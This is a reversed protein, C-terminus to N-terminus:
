WQYTSMGGQTCSSMEGMVTGTSHRQNRQSPHCTAASCLPTRDGLEVQSVLQPLAKQQSDCYLSGLLTLAIQPLLLILLCLLFIRNVPALRHTGVAMYTNQFAIKTRLKSSSARSSM